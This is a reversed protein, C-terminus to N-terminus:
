AGSVDAKWGGACGGPGAWDWPSLACCCWTCASCAGSSLSSNEREGSAPVNHGCLLPLLCSWSLLSPPPASGLGVFPFWPRDDGVDGADCVSWRSEADGSTSLPTHAHMRMFPVVTCSPSSAVRVLGQGVHKEVTLLRYQRSAPASSRTSSGRRMSSGVAALTLLPRGYPCAWRPRGWVVIMRVLPVPLVPRSLSACHRHRMMHMHGRLAAMSHSLSSECPRGLPRTVFPRDYPRAWRPKCWVTAVGVFSVPLVPGSLCACRGPCMMYMHHRVAAMRHLFSPMCPHGSLRPTVFLRDCPCAWRPKYWVAAVGGFSM